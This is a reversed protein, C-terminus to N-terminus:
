KIKIGFLALIAGLFAFGLAFIVYLYVYNLFMKEYPSEAKSIAEKRDENVDNITEVAAGTFEGAVRETVNQKIEDVTNPLNKVQDAAEPEGSLHLMGWLVFIGLSAFGFVWLFLKLYNM